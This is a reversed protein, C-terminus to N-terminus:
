RTIGYLFLDVAEAMMDEPAGMPRSTYLVALVSNILLRAANLPQVPRFCGKNIGEEIVEAVLNQYEYRRQQIRKQSEPKLRQAEFTLHSNLNRNAQLHALHKEMIRRLRDEPPLDMGAIRQAQDVMESIQKELIFILIEDKTKFYDYLTSKGMGAAEAIERMSTEQFGKRLILPVVIDFIESRRKELEQETLPIGRPM